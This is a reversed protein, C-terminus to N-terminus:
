FNKEKSLLLGNPWLPKVEVSSNQLSYFVSKKLEQFDLLNLHAIQPLNVESDREGILDIHDDRFCINGLTFLLSWTLHFWM